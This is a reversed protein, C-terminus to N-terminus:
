VAPTYQDHPIAASWAAEFADLCFKVVDPEDYFQIEARGDNGDLVNFIVLEGDLVFFDNGPLALTSTLRRPLWRLDDGVGVGASSVAYVFRHYDSLPESAVRIRRTRSRRAVVAVVDDQWRTVEADIRATDGALWAAVTGANVAYSDRLDCKAYDLAKGILERRRSASILEM